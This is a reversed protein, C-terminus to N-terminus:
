EFLNLQEHVQNLRSLGLLDACALANPAADHAGNNNFIVYVQQARQALLQIRQALEQLELTSYCYSTRLHRHESDAHTWYTSNRGHLRVFALPPTTITSVWPYSAPFVQPEDVQALTLQLKQLREALPQRWQLQHWSQHRLEIIIPIGPLEQRLCTLYSLAATTLTFSAPFQALVAGLKQNFAPLLQYFDQFQQHRTQEDPAGQQWTLTSPLKIIFKFDAPVAQCWATIIQPSKLGYFFTDLEVCQFYSAYHALGRSKGSTHLLPHDNFSTLGLTIM